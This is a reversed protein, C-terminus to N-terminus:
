YTGMIKTMLKDNPYCLPQVLIAWLTVESRNKVGEQRCDRSKLKSRIM